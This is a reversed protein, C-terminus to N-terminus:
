DAGGTAFFPMTPHVGVCLIGEDYKKAHQDPLSLLQQMQRLDWLQLEGEHTSIVMSTGDALFQLDSFSETNPLVQLSKLDRPDTVLVADELGIALLDLSNHSVLKLV